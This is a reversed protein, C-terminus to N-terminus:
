NDFIYKNSLEYYESNLEYGIGKINNQRAWKLTTGSGLYPDLLFKDKIIYGNVLEVLEIPYPATHKYTNEGKSNIKIVPPIQVVKKNNVGINSKNFVFVHEYCNICKVYGAYLNVTSNRKSQVEGKDWIINEQLKYGAIEFIMCSLFGLPLRRNSMHSEVYINDEGVIDGINYLYNGCADMTDYIATVNRLMDILYLLLNQWQSYERANYYPPSTIATGIQLSKLLPINTTSDGCITKINETIALNGHETKILTKINEFLKVIPLNSYSEVYKDNKQFEADDFRQINRSLYTKSDSELNYTLINEGKWSYFKIIMDICNLSDSFVDRRWANYDTNSIANEKEKEELKFNRYIGYEDFRKGRGSKSRDQCHPNKCEYSRLFMEPYSNGSQITTMCSPCPVPTEDQSIKKLTIVIHEQNDSVFCDEYKFGTSITSYFENGLHTEELGFRMKIFDNLKQIQKIKKCPNFDKKYQVFNEAYITLKYALQWTIDKNNKNYIQGDILIILHRYNELKEYTNQILNYLYKESFDHKRFDNNNINLIFISYGFKQSRKKEYYDLWEKGHSISSNKFLTLNKFREKISSLIKNPDYTQLRNNTDLIVNEVDEKSFVISTFSPVNITDLVERNEYYYYNRLAKRDISNFIRGQRKQEQKIINTLKKDFFRNIDFLIRILLENSIDMNLKDKIIHLNTYM